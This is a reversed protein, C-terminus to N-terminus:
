PLVGLKKRAADDMCDDWYCERRQKAPVQMQLKALRQSHPSAAWSPGSPFPKPVKYLLTGAQYHSHSCCWSGSFRSEGPIVFRRIAEEFERGEGAREFGGFVPIDASELRLMRVGEVSKLAARLEVDTLGAAVSVRRAGEHGDNAMGGDAGDAGNIGESPGTGTHFHVSTSSSPAGLQAAAEPHFSANLLTWPRLPVYPRVDWAYVTKDLRVHRPITWPSEYGPVWLGELEEVNLFNEMPCVFPLSTTTGLKICAPLVDWPQQARECLCLLRPMILERGLARAIALAQKM